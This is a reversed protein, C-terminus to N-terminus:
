NYPNIYLLSPYPKDLLKALVVHNGLGPWDRDLMKIYSRYEEGSGDSDRPYIRLLHGLDGFNICHTKQSIKFITSGTWGSTYELRTSNVGYINPLRMKLQYAIHVTQVQVSFSDKLGPDIYKNIKVRYYDFILDSNAEIWEAIEEISQLTWLDAMRAEVDQQDLEEIL